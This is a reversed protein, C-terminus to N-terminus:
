GKTYDFYLINGSDAKCHDQVYTIYHMGLTGNVDYRYQCSCHIHVQQWAASQSYLTTTVDIVRIDNVIEQKGDCSNNIGM